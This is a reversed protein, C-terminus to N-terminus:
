QILSRNDQLADSIANRLTETCDEIMPLDDPFSVPEREVLTRDAPTLAELDGVAKGSLHEFNSSAAIPIKKIVRGELTNIYEIEGKINADKRQIQEIITCQLDKYKPIKIDNGLSDKMVNGRADLAYNFGDEVRKKRLYEKNEYGEPSVNIQQLIINVQYDYKTDRNLRSLHYETWENNLNTTNFSLLKEYFDAPLKAMSNNGVEVLVRNIGLFQAESLLQNLDPFASERYKKARQFDYFAERYAEKTGVNMKAKGHKYYYEAAKTKAESIQNTYDTRPYNLIRGNLSLPMVKAVENQRYNLSSYLNLIQEWNEPKGEAKLLKIRDLDRQNALNYAKDLNEIDDRDAKGKLIQKVSKSIAADYDGQIMMKSTSRCGVLLVIIFLYSLKHMELTKNIRILSLFFGPSIGPSKM